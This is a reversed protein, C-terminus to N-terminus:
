RMGSENGGERMKKAGERWEEGRSGEREREEGGKVRGGWM